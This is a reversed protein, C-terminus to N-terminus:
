LKKYLYEIREVYKSHETIRKSERLYKEIEKMYDEIEDDDLGLKKGYNLYEVLTLYYEMAFNDYLQSDISGVEFNNKLAAREKKTKNLWKIAEDENGLVKCSMYLNRYAYACFLSIIGKHDNNDRIPAAANLVEINELTKKAWYMSKEMNKKVNEESLEPNFAYLGYAYGIHEALFVNAWEDFTGMDDDVIEDIYTRYNDRFKHFTVRDIYFEGDERMQINMIMEFFTICINVAVALEDSFYTHYDDKFTKIEKYVKREDGFMHGAQMYFLIYQALEYDSCKSGQESFQSQIYDHMKYRNNILLMKNENISMKQRNFFYSIIGNAFETDSSGCDIPEVFSNDFDSPLVVQESSRRVCHVKTQGYMSLVYGLEFFLNNSVMGDDRNQFIVIAQNCNRMQQIVTDGVSAFRSNNDSNGGIICKYNKTELNKKVYLAADSTGSWIIFIKDKM